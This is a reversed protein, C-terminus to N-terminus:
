QVTISAASLSIMFRDTIEKSSQFDWRRRAYAILMNRRRIARCEISTILTFFGMRDSWAQVTGPSMGADRESHFIRDAAGPNNRTGQLGGAARSAIGRQASELAAIKLNSFCATQL